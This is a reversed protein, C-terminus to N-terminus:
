TNPQELTIRGLYGDRFDQIVFRAVKDFDIRGGSELAGRLTGIANFIAEMDYTSSNINYRAELRGPYHQQLHGIIFAAIDQLSLLQDKITGIAALRYGILEDTFKPWLIGPTDLLEFVNQIKIWSQQKTMGPKDSTKAIKKNALRNILTSKGVNPIGIIMARAARPRIGKKKLQEMKEQSLSKAMQIMRQIDDRDNVDVAITQKGEQRLAELWRNTIQDDALDKKMLVTMNPKQHLLQALMPNQSSAPARADVLEVVFDVLKLKDEAERKAKAMHGPYWQISM